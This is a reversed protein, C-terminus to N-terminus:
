LILSIQGPRDLDREGVYGCQAMEGDASVRVLGLQDFASERGRPLVRCVWKRRQM